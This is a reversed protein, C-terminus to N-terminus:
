VYGRNPPVWIPAGQVGIGEVSPRLWEGWVVVDFYSSRVLTCTCPSNLSVSSIVIFLESYVLSMFVQIIIINNNVSIVVAYSDGIEHVYSSVVSSVSERVTSISFEGLARVDQHHFGGGKSLQQPPQGLGLATALM